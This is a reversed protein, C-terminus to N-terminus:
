TGTGVVTTIIGTAADIRRIRHAGSDAVFINGAQDIDIDQAFGFGANVAL